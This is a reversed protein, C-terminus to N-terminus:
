MGKWLKFVEDEIKRESEDLKVNLLKELLEKDSKTFNADVSNKFVDLLKKEKLIKVAEKVKM